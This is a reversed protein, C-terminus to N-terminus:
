SPANVLAVEADFVEVRHAARLQAYLADLAAQARRFALVNKVSVAVDADYAKQATMEVSTARLIAYRGDDLQVPGAIAGAERLDNAARVLARDYDAAHVEGLDEGGAAAFAADDAHEVQRYIAEARAPDDVYIARVHTKDIKNFEGPHAAYYSAAEDDGIPALKAEEDHILAQNLEARRRAPAGDAVALGRREAEAAFLRVRIAADVALARPDPPAAQGPVPEAPKVFEGIETATVPDGDVCAVITHDTRAGCSPDSRCAAGALALAM